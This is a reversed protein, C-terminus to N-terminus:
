ITRSLRRLGAGLGKDLLNGVLDGILPLSSFNIEWRVSSSEGHDAFTIEGNHKRVPGGFKNITYEISKNLELATVTEQTGIPWPGLRRVSGVGNPSDHGERIRRVPVGLVKGLQNHDALVSFVREVPAPFTQELVIQYETM